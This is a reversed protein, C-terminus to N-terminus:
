AAKKWLARIRKRSVPIKRARLARAVARVSEAGARRAKRMAAVFVADTTRPGNGNAKAAAKVTKKATKKAMANEEPTPTPWEGVTFM